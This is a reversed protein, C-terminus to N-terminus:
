LPDCAHLCLRLHNGSGHAPNWATARNQRYRVVIRRRTHEYGPYLLRREFRQGDTNAEFVASRRATKNIGGPTEQEVDEAIIRALHEFVEALPEGELGVSEVPEGNTSRLEPREDLRADRVESAFDRILQSDAIVVQVDTIYCGASSDVVCLRVHM